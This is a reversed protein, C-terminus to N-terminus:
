EHDDQLAELDTYCIDCVHTYAGPEDIAARILRFPPYWEGCLACKQYGVSLAISEM